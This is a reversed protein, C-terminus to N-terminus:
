QSTIYYFVGRKAKISKDACLASLLVSEGASFSIEEQDFNINGDSLCFILESCDRSMKEVDPKLVSLKFYESMPLLYEGNSDAHIIQPLSEEDEVMSLLTNRDIYKPTLGARVVNDSPAMCEILEGSLYAHPINPAIFIAEEPKLTVLNLFYFNFIGVDGEPYLKAADLIHRSLEDNQNTKELRAYLKKSQEHALKTKTQM